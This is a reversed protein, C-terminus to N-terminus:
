ELVLRAHEVLIKQRNILHHLTKTVELGEKKFEFSYTHEETHNARFPVETWMFVLKTPSAEIIDTTVPDRHERHIVLSDLSPVLTMEDSIREVHEPNDHKSIRFKLKLYAGDKQYVSKSQAILRSEIVSYKVEKGVYEGTEGLWNEQNSLAFIVPRPDKQTDAKLQFSFTSLLFLSFIHLRM